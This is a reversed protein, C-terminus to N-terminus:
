QVPAAPASPLLPPTFSQPVGGMGGMGPMGGMGGMGPMGGMGAHPNPQSGGPVTSPSSPIITTYLVKTKKVSNRIIVRDNLISDVRWNNDMAMGATVTSDVGRYRITAQYDKGNGYISKVLMEDVPPVKEAKIMEPASQTAANTLAPLAIPDLKISDLKTKAKSSAVSEELKVKQDEIKLITVAKQLENLRNVYEGDDQPVSISIPQASSSQPIAPQSPPIPQADASPVIAM